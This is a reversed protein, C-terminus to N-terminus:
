YTTKLTCSIVFSKELKRPVRFDEIKENVPMKCIGGINRGSVDLCAQTDHRGNDASEFFSEHLYRSEFEHGGAQLAPARGVSSYGWLDPMWRSERATELLTGDATQTKVMTNPIPVPTDWLRM